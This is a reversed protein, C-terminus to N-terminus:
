SAMAELERRLKKLGRNYKSLVTSLPISLHDAIERHKMGSVIHLLITKLEDESLIKFATKLVMRDEADGISDFVSPAEDNELLEYGDRSKQRFRQMCLNRTITMIWAMPKGQPKYLHAAGRIKLYTDQLVDEAEYKDKLLSLAYSYVAGKTLEYLECFATKDGSAIEEFLKEDIKPNDNRKVDDSVMAACILM